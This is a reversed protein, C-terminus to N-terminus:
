TLAALLEPIQGFRVGVEDIRDDSLLESEHTGCRHQQEKEREGVAANAYRRVGVISEPKIQRHADGRREHKLSKDVDAHRRRRPRHGAHRQGEDTVAARREYDTQEADAEQGANRATPRPRSNGGFRTFSSRSTRIRRAPPPVPPWKYGASDSALASEPAGASGPKHEGRAIGTAGPVGIRKFRLAGTSDPSAVTCSSSTVARPSTSARITWSNSTGTAATSLRGIERDDSRAAAPPSSPLTRPTACAM